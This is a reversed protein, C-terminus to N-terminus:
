ARYVGQAKTEVALKKIKIAASHHWLLTTDPV